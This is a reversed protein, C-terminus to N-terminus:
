WVERVTTYSAGLRLAIERWSLGAARLEPVQDRRFIRKPRGIPRGSRTGHEGPKPTPKVMAIGAL